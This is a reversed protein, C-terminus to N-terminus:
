YGPKQPLKRGFALTALSLAMVDDVYATAGLIPHHMYQKRSRSQNSKVRGSEIAANKRAEFSGRNRAQGIIGGYNQLM